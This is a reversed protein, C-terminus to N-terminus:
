NKDRSFQYHKQYQSAELKQFFPNQKQFSNKKKKKKLNDCNKPSSFTELLNQQDQNCYNINASNFNFIEKYKDSENIM